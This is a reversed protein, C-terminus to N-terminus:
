STGIGLGSFDGEEYVREVYAAVPTKQVGMPSATDKYMVWVYDWGGEKDVTLDPSIALSANSPAASFHFTIEWDTAGGPAVRKSGSAGRFLVERAAFGRFSASNVKGTLAYLALKYATTVSADAIYHTESFNFVPAIIDVGEISDGNVGIAQQTEPPTYDPIGVSSLTELSQTIHQTGGGTEFTYTSSGTEQTTGDRPGYAVTADWLEGGLYELTNSLLPYGDSTSPAETLLATRATDRDDTGRIWYLHEVGPNDGSTVRPSENREAVTVPM